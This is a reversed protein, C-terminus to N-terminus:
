QGIRDSFAGIKRLIQIREADTTAGKLEEKLSAAETSIRKIQSKQEFYAELRAELKSWLLDVLIPVVKGLVGSFLGALWAM